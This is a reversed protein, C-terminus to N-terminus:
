KRGSLGNSATKKPLWNAVVPVRRKEYDGSAFGFEGAQNVDRPFGSRGFEGFAHEYWPQVRPALSVEKNEVCGRSLVNTTEGHRFARQFKSKGM